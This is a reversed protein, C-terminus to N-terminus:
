LYFLALSLVALNWVHWMQNFFLWFVFRFETFICSPVEFGFTTSLIEGLVMLHLKNANM